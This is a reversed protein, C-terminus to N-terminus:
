SQCASLASLLVAAATALCVIYILARTIFRKVPSQGHAADAIKRSAEIMPAGAPDSRNDM